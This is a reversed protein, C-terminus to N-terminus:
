PRGKAEGAAAPPRARAEAQQVADLMVARPVLRLLLGVGVVLVVIDDLQGIVPIFDPILDFPMALYLVLFPPIARAVAPVRADAALARVLWWKSRWPLRQIRAGLRKTEASARRALLWAAVGLALAVIAALLLWEPLSM